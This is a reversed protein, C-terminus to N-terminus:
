DPKREFRADLRVSRKVSERWRQRVVVWARGEREMVVALEVAPGPQTSGSTTAVPVAGAEYVQLELVPERVESEARLRLLGPGPISYVASVEYDDGGQMEFTVTGDLLGRAARERYPYLPAGSGLGCPSPTRCGVLGLVCVGALLVLRLRSM